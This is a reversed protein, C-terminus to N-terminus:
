MRSDVMEDDHRAIDLAEEGEGCGFDLVTKGRVRGWFVPGFLADLKDKARYGPPGTGDRWEYRRLILAALKGGILAM